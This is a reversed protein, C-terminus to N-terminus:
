AIPNIEPNTNLLAVWREMIEAVDRPPQGGNVRRPAPLNCQPHNMEPQGRLLMAQTTYVARIGPPVPIFGPPHDPPPPPGAKPLAPPPRLNPRFMRPILHPPVIDWTIPPRPELTTEPPYQNVELQFELPTPIIDNFGHIVGEADVIWLRLTPWPPHLEWYPRYLSLTTVLHILDPGVGCERMVPGVQCSVSRCSSVFQSCFDYTRPRLPVCPIETQCSFHRPPRATTKHILAKLKEDLYSVDSLWSLPASNGPAWDRYPPSPRAAIHMHVDGHMWRIIAFRPNWSARIEIEIMRGRIEPPSLAWVEGTFITSETSQWDRRSDLDEPRARAKFDFRESHLTRSVFAGM